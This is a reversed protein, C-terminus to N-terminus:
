YYCLLLTTCQLAALALAPEWYTRKSLLLDRSPGDHMLLGDVPPLRPPFPPVGRRRAVTMSYGTTDPYSGCSFTCQQVCRGQSSASRYRREPLPHVAVVVHNQKSDFSDLSIPTDGDQFILVVLDNGIHRKRELQAYLDVAGWAGAM